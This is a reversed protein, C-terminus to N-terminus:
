KQPNIFKRGFINLNHRTQTIQLELLKWKKINLGQMIITWVDTMHVELRTCMQFINEWKQRTNLKSKKGDSIRLPTQNTYDTVVATKMGEFEFKAYNNNVAKGIKYM